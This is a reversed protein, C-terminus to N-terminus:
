QPLEALEAALLARYLRCHGTARISAHYPCGPRAAATPGPPTSAAPAALPAGVQVKVSASSCQSQTESLLPLGQMTHMASTHKATHQAVQPDAVLLMHASKSSAAGSTATHATALTRRPLPQFSIATAAAKALLLTRVLVRLGKVHRVQAPLAHTGCGHPNCRGENAHQHSFPKQYPGFTTKGKRPPQPHQLASHLHSMCAHQCATAHICHQVCIRRLLFPDCHIYCFFVRWSGTTLWGCASSCTGLVCSRDAPPSPFNLAAPRL